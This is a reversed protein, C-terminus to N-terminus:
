SYTLPDDDQFINISNDNEIIFDYRLPVQHVRDSKRLPPTYLPHVENKSVEPQPDGQSGIVPM